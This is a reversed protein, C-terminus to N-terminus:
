LHIKLPANYFAYKPVDAFNSPLNYAGPGPIDIKLDKARSEASGFGWKPGEIGKRINYSGPGVASRSKSLHDREETGIKIRPSTTRSFEIKPSYAGPGPLRRDNQSKVADVRRPTIIHRPGEVVKSPINYSGPGPTCSSGDRWDRSSTGFRITPTGGVLRPQYNGPGPTSGHERSLTDRSASGIRYTPSRTKNTITLNYAGPGPNRSAAVMASNPRRPTMSTGKGPNEFTGRFTYTGPGPMTKSIGYLAERESSGFGWQPGSAASNPRTTYSGPGPTNGKRYFDDRKASGIRINPIAKDLIRSTQEYAGPGPVKLKDNSESTRPRLSYSPPIHENSRFGIPDYTGPGPTSTTGDNSSTKMAISYKPSAKFFRGPSNYTGPGPSDTRVEIKRISTGMRWSPPTPKRADKANYTGPGPV